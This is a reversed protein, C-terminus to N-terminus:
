SISHTQIVSKHVRYSRLAAELIWLKRRGISFEQDCLPRLVVPERVSDVM